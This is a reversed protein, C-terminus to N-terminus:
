VLFLKMSRSPGVAVAPRRSACRPLSTYINMIKWPLNKHRAQQRLTDREDGAGTPTQSPRMREGEGAAARSHHDIVEIRRTRCLHALFDRSQAALRKGAAR